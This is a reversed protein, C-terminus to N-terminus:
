LNLESLLDVNSPPGMNSGYTDEKKRMQRLMAGREFEDIPAVMGEMQAGETCMSDRQFRGLTSEQSKLDAFVDTSLPDSMMQRKSGVLHETMVDREPNLKKKAAEKIEHKSHEVARRLFMSETSKKKASVTYWYFVLIVAIIVIGVILSNTPADIGWMALTQDM